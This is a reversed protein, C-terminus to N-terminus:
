EAWVVFTFVKFGNGFDREFIASRGNASEHVKTGWNEQAHVNANEFGAPAAGITTSNDLHSYITELQAYDHTNPNPNDLADAYDMCTNLDAGSEDQHGLGWDHGIEQCVVHQRATEDYAPNSFYTDNMKATGQTIHSGRVWIQALGLWGNNGYTYNCSRVKGKVARCRSRTDADSAGAEEAIDLVSSKSWDSIATDLNDDWDATMSDIVTINAPNSTRAWHYNGWAHDAGASFPFAALMVIVALVLVSRAKQTHM